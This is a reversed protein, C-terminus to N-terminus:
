GSAKQQKAVGGASLYLYACPKLEGCKCMPATHGNYRAEVTPCRLTPCDVSPCHLATTPYPLTTNQVTFVVTSGHCVAAHALWEGSVDLMILIRSNDGLVIQTSSNDGLVIQTSSSADLVRYVAALM